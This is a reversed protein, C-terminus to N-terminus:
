CGRRDNGMARSNALPPAGMSYYPGILYNVVSTLAAGISNYALTAAFHQQPGVIRLPTSSSIHQQHAAASTSM